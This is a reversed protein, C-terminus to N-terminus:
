HQFQGVATTRAFSGTLSPPPFAANIFLGATFKECENYVSLCSREIEIKPLKSYISSSILCVCISRSGAVVSLRSRPRCKKKQKAKTKEKSM